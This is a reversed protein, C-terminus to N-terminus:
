KSNKKIEFTNLDFVTIICAELTVSYGKDNDLTLYFPSSQTPIEKIITNTKLDIVVIKMDEQCSVFGFNKYFKLDSPGKGVAFEIPWNRDLDIMTVTGSGQNVVYGRGEYIQLPQPNKGVSITCLNMVSLDQAELYKVDEYGADVIYLMDEKGVKYATLSILNKALFFGHIQTIYTDLNIEIIEKTLPSLVYGKHEHIVLPLCGFKLNITELVRHTNLDVVTITGDGKNTVFGKVRDIVVDVPEKGVPIKSQANTALEIVVLCNEKANPVYMHTQTSVAAYAATWLCFMLFFLTILRM